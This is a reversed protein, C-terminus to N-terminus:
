GLLNAVPASALTGVAIVVVLVIWFWAIWSNRM